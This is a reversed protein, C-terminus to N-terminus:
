LFTRIVDLLPWSTVGSPQHERSTGLVDNKLMLVFRMETTINKTKTLWIHTNSVLANTIGYEQLKPSVGQSRGLFTGFHCRCRSTRPIDKPSKILFNERFYNKLSIKRYKTIGLSCWINCFCFGLVDQKPGIIM